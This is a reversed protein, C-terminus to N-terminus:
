SVTAVLRTRPAARMAEDEAGSVSSIAGARLFSREQRETVQMAEDEANTRRRRQARTSTASPSTPENLARPWPVARCSCVHFASRRLQIRQPRRASVPVARARSLALSRALCVAAQRGHIRHRPRAGVALFFFDPQKKDPLELLAIQLSALHAQNDLLSEVTILRNYASYHAQLSAWSVNENTMSVPCM